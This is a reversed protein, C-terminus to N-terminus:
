RRGPPLSRDRERFAKIGRELQDACEAALRKVLVGIKKRQRESDFVFEVGMGRPSGGDAVWAVRCRLKVGLLYGPPKLKCEMETGVPLKRRTRIFTGGESIDEAFERVFGADTSYGVEVSCPVRRSKRDVFDVSKGEACDFVMQLIRRQDSGFEVEVGAPFPPNKSGRRSAIVKGRLRFSRKKSPFEVIVTVGEALAFRRGTFVFLVVAQERRSFDGFLMEPDLYLAHLSKTRAM